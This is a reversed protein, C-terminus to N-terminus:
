SNKRTFRLFLVVALAICWVLMAAAGLPITFFMFWGSVFLFALMEGIDTGGVVCPHVGGENLECGFVNAASSASLAAILPASTLLLIAVASLLFPMALRRGKRAEQSDPASRM